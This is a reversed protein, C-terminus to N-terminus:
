LSGAGQPPKTPISEMSTLTTPMGVSQFFHQEITRDARETYKQMKQDMVCYGYLLKDRKSRAQVMVALACGTLSEAHALRLACYNM